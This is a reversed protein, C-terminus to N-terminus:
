GATNLDGLIGQLHHDLDIGQDYLSVAKEAATRITTRVVDEQSETLGLSYFTTEVNEALSHLVLQTEIKQRDYKKQLEEITKRTRLAVLRLLASKEQTEDFLDIASASAEAGEAILAAHDRLRGATDEDQIPMNTVLLSVKDYNVIIRSRFQFIRGMTRMKEFMSEELPSAAGDPTLTVTKSRGRIQVQCELGYQRMSEITLRGLSLSDRCTFCNRLFGLVIGTEGLSTMVSMAMQRAEAGEEKIRRRDADLEIAVKIKEAAESPIFPKVIFDQGGVEYAQIREEFTDHSSIFIVPIDRTNEEEKLRLCTQYGSMGPMEIDMLVIDPLQAAVSALCDPGSNALFVKFEAQKLAEALVASIMPDDDVILVKAIHDQAEDM